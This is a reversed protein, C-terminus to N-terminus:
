FYPKKRRGPSASRPGKQAVSSPRQAGRSLAPRDPDDRRRHQAHQRRLPEGRGHRRRHEGGCIRERGAESLSLWEPRVAADVAMGIEAWPLGCRRSGRATPTSFPPTTRSTPSALRSVPQDQRRVPRRVLQCPREYVEEPTGLQAIRGGSMVAIRDAVAMAESRITPSLSPPSASSASSRCWSPRCSRACSSISRM